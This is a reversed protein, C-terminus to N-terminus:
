FNINNEYNPNQFIILFFEKSFYNLKLSMPILFCSRSQSSKDRICLTGEERSIRELYNVYISM